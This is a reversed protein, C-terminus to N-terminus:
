LVFEWKKNGADYLLLYGGSMMMEKETKSIDYNCFDVLKHKQFKHRSHRVCNNDIYCYGQSLRSVYTFGLTSYLGGNGIDNSSYSMVSSPNYEKVFQKFLKSAGGIVSTFLLNSFRIIEWQYKKDFRPKSFSMACVIIDNHVLGYYISANTHGALHCNDFFEKAEKPTLKKITTNRAYIKKNKHLKNSIMSKIIDKKHIWQDEYVHLLSIGLNDCIESKNYHYNEEKGFNYSHYYVGNYEIGFKFSEVYVDLEKGNLIKRNNIDIFDECILTKVYEIVEAHGSIYEYNNNTKVHLNEIQANIHDEDFLYKKKAACSHSCCKHYHNKFFTNNKIKCVPCKPIELIDNLWHYYMQMLKSKNNEDYPFKCMDLYYISKKINRVLFRNDVLYDFKKQIKKECNVFISYDNIKEDMELTQIFDNILLSQEEKSLNIFDKTNISM